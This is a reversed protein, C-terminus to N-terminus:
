QFPTPCVDELYVTHKKVAPSGPTVPSGAAASGMPSSYGPPSSHGLSSGSTVLSPNNFGPPSAHGVASVGTVLRSASFGPPSGHSLTSRAASGHGLISGATALPSGYGTPSGHDLPSGAGLPSNSGALGFVPFDKPAPATTASPPSVPRRPLVVDMLSTASKM